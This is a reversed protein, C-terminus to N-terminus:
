WIVRAGPYKPLWEDKGVNALKERMARHVFIRDFPDRHLDPLAMSHIADMGRRPIEEIGHRWTMADPWDEPDVLMRPDGVFHAGKLLPDPERRNRVPNRPVLDAVRKGHKSITIPRGEKQTREILSSPKVKTEYITIITRM